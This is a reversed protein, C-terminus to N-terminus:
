GGLFISRLASVLRDKDLVDERGLLFFNQRTTFQLIDDLMDQVKDRELLSVMIAKAHAGGLQEARSLAEFSKEKVIGEKSSTTASILFLQYGNIAIVDIQADKRSGRARVHVNMVCEAWTIAIRNKVISFVHEELWGGCMFVATEYWCTKKDRDANVDDSNFDPDLKSDIEELGIGSLFNKADRLPLTNGQRDEKKLLRKRKSAVERISQWIDISRDFESRDMAPICKVIAGIASESYLNSNSRTCHLLEMGHLALLDELSVQVIDRLDGTAPHLFQEGRVEVQLKFNVPDVDSIELALNDEKCKKTCAIYAEVAMPKTGGTINLHIRDVRTGTTARIKDISEKVIRRIEPFNRENDGISLLQLPPSGKIDLVTAVTKATDEAMQKTQNSHVLLVVHEPGEQALLYNLVVYNPLPNGGTLM